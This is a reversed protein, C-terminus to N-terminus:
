PSEGISSIEATSAGMLVEPAGNSRPTVRTTSSSTQSTMGSM